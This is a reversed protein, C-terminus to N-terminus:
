SEPGEEARDRVLSHGEPMSVPVTAISVRRASSSLLIGPAYCLLLAQQAVCFQSEEYAAPNHKRLYGYRGAELSKVPGPWSLTRRISWPYM